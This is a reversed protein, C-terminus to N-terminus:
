FAMRLEWTLQSPYQAGQGLPHTLLPSGIGILFAASPIRARSSIPLVQTNGLGLTCCMVIHLVAKVPSFYPGHQMNDMFSLEHM